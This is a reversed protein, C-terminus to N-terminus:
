RWVSAGRSGPMVSPRVTTRRPHLAMHEPLSNVIQLNDLSNNARNGDIHHVIDSPLLPRGLSREMVLRHEAIHGKDGGGRGDYGGCVRMVYGGVSVVPISEFEEDDVIARLSRCRNCKIPYPWERTGRTREHGCIVCRIRIRSRRGRRVEVLEWMLSLEGIHNALPPEAIWSTRALGSLQGCGCSKTNGTRLNRASVAKVNGCDCACRRMEGPLVELVTLMGWKSGLGTKMDDGWFAVSGVRGLGQPSTLPMRRSLNGSYTTSSTPSM